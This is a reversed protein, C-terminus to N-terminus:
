QPKEAAALERQRNAPESAAPLLDLITTGSGFAAAWDKNFGAVGSDTLPHALVKDLLDPSMTAAHAGAMAVAHVQQVNKFSAALVRTPLGFTSFLHVMQAVVGPGDGSNNDIRNVYPATFAAGARAALLAQQPAAIATATVSFGADALLRIAKIGQPTVPLKPYLAPGFRDCLRAAERFMTEADPAMVQAHLMARSGIISRIETLLDVLPRKERAVLTPNTTVGALPFLDACRAIARVDATDLLYLM